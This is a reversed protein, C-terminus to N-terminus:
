KGKCCEKSCYYKGDQIIAEKNSVYIGCKECEIMIEEQKKPTEKRPSKRIFFYYVGMILVIVILWQM